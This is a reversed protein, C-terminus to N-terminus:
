GQGGSYIALQRNRMVIYGVVLTLGSWIVALRLFSSLVASWPVVLGNVLDNTPRYQGFAELMFVSIQAIIRIFSEFIWQIVYGLNDWEVRDAEVPVYFELAYALYPGMTAAMFVTFSALCAVPFSLFTACCIALGALFGLKVLMVLM